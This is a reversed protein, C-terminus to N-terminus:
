QADVGHMYHQQEQLTKKLDELRISCNLTYRLAACEAASWGWLKMISGRSITSIAGVWSVGCVVVGAAIEWRKKKCQSLTEEQDARCQRVNEKQDQSTPCAYPIHTIRLTPFEEGAHLSGVLTCLVFSQLSM